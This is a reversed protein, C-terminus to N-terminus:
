AAHTPNTQKNTQKNQSQSTLNTSPKRAKHNRPTKNSPQTTGAQNAPPFPVLRRPNPPSPEDQRNSPQKTAKPQLKILQHFLVLRRLDPPQKTPLYEEPHEELFPSYASFKLTLTLIDFESRDLEKSIGECAKPRDFLRCDRAQRCLVVMRDV